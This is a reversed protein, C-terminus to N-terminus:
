GRDGIGNLDNCADLGGICIDPPVNRAQEGINAFM